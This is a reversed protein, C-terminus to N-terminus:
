QMHLFLHYIGVEKEQRSHIAHAIKIEPYDSNKEKLSHLLHDFGIERVFELYKKWLGTFAKDKDPCDCYVVIYNNQLGVPDYKFIKVCHSEIVESKFGELIFAELIAEPKNTPVITEPIKESKKKFPWM